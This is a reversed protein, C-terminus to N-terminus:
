FIDRYRGGASFASMVQAARDQDGIIVAGKLLTGYFWYKEHSIKLDNTIEVNRYRVGQAKGPDGIAFVETGFADLILGLAKNTYSLKEGVANAGCAKGQAVAETWLQYNVGDFEVCDGCGYIDPVSTEMHANVVISRNIKLGASQAPDLNPRNGCAVIVLDAEFERGDELKVSSVHGEEGEGCIETVSIGEYCPIAFGRMKEKLIDASQSDLQRSMIQPAVELVTPMVGQRYLEYTIEMGIVGGGIVVARRATRCEQLITQVDRLHRVTIVGARDKGKFPPMFCECGLAYILKDYSYSSGDRCVVEKKEPIIETVMKGLRIDIDRKDYWEQDHYIIMEPTKDIDQFNKSLMPRNVPLIDAATLMTIRGTKDRLRIAEAASVAAIGGGIILYTDDSEKTFAIEDEEAPVCQDLGVGCVPCTGLSAEFVEGCVLCKVLTPKRTNEIKLVFCGVGYGFDVAFKEWREDPNGPVIFDPPDMKMGMARLQEKLSDSAYGPSVSSVFVAGIKGNVSRKDLSTIIDWIAKDAGQGDESTGFVYADAERVMSIVSFRDQAALNCDIIDIDGAESVGQMIKEAMCETYGNRTYIFALKPKGAVAKEPCIYQVIRDIDSNIVPGYAPCICTINNDCILAAAKRMVKERDFARIDYAFLMVGELFANKNEADASFCNEQACLSGFGDATYLIGQEPDVVYLASTVYRDLLVKFELKKGGIVLTRDGRVELKRAYPLKTGNLRMLAGFEGIIVTDSSVKLLAEVANSDDPTGFLVLYDPRGVLTLWEDIYEKPVTGLVIEKDGAELLYSSYSIGYDTYALSRFARFSSDIAAIRFLGKQIEQRVM